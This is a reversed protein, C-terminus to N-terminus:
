STENTVELLRMSKKKSLLQIEKKRKRNTFQIEKKQWISSAHKLRAPGFLGPGSLPRTHM